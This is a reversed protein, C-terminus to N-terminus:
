PIMLTIHHSISLMHSWKEMQAVIAKEARSKVWLSALVCSPSDYFSFTASRSLPQYFTVCKVNEVRYSILYLDLDLSRLFPGEKCKFFLRLDICKNWLNVPAIFQLYLNCFFCNDAM